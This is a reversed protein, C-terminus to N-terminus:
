AAESLTAFTYTNEYSAPSSYACRSHRRRLNYRVLWRFVDRRCTAADPWQSRDQYRGKPHHVESRRSGRTTILSDHHIN